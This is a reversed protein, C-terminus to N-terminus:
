TRIWPDNADIIVEEQKRIVPPNPYKVFNKKTINPKFTCEKDIEITNQERARQKKIEM